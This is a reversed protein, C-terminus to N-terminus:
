PDVSRAITTALRDQRSIEKPFVDSEVFFSFLLL